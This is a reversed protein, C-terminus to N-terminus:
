AARRYIRTEWRAAVIPGPGRYDTRELSALHTATRAFYYDRDANDVVLIGNPALRRSAHKICSPRARGDILIVDFLQDGFQDIAECYERFDLRPDTASRYGDPDDAERRKTTARPPILRYDLNAVGAIRHRFQEYWQVDHEVSVCRAGRDLWFLTSGGSGYEFVSKGNFDIAALTDIAAFVLWPVRLEITSYPARSRWWRWAYQRDRRSALLSVFYAADGALTM